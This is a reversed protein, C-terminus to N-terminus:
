EAKTRECFAKDIEDLGQKRREEQSVPSPRCDVHATVLRRKELPHLGVRRGSWGSAVPASM